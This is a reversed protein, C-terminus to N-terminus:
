DLPPTRVVIVVTRAVCGRWRLIVRYDVDRPVVGDRVALPRPPAERRLLLPPRGHRVWRGGRSTQTPAKAPLQRHVGGAATNQNRFYPPRARGACPTRRVRLGPRSPPCCRGRPCQGRRHSTCSTPPLGFPQKFSARHGGNVLWPAEILGILCGNPTVVLALERLLVGLRVAVGARGRRVGVLGVAVPDVVHEPVHPLPSTLTAQLSPSPPLSPPLRQALSVGFPQRISAGHSTFPSCPADNL